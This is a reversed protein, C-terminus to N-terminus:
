DINEWYNCHGWEGILLRPPLGLPPPDHDCWQENHFSDYRHFKCEHCPQYSSPEQYYVKPIELTM